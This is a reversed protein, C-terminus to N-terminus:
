IGLALEPRKGPIDSSTLQRLLKTRPLQDARNPGVLVRGVVKGSMFDFSRNSGGAKLEPTHLRGLRLTVEAMVQVHASLNDVAQRFRAAM